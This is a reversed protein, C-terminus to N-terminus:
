AGFVGGFALSVAFNILIYSGGIMFARKLEVGYLASVVIGVLVAVLVLGVFIGAVGMVAVCGFVLFAGGISIGIAMLCATGLGVDEDQMLKLLAILVCANLLIGLM